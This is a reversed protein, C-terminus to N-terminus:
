GAIWNLGLVFFPAAAIHSDFRDLIGGHGPLLRGSDKQGAERKLLSEFLDGEVSVLGALLSLLVLSVRQAPPWPLALAVAVALLGVGLLGGLLGERTKGPSLEPALKHRGFRRGAVYAMSDATACLALLYLLWGPARAHLGVFALWAAPLLLLGLARLPWQWRPAGGPAHQRYGALPVLLALWLVVAAMLWGQGLPAARGQWLLAGLAALAVLYAAQTAPTALGTLRAWEWGGILFLVAFVAAVTPTGTGLIVALLFLALLGGSILRQRLM